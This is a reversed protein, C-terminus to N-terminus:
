ESGCRMAKMRRVMFRANDPLLIACPTVRITAVTTDQASELGKLQQLFVPDQPDATPYPLLEPLQQRQTAPSVPPSIARRCDEAFLDAHLILVENNLM